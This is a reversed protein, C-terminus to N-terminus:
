LEQSMLVHGDHAYRIWLEDLKEQAKDIPAAKYRNDEVQEVMGGAILKRVADDIEFDVKIELRRELDLEVYDDLESMTWGREGAYRWLFFYALLVERIEQDEAEDLLRYMVGANNDLNQYYLSQTLQLTYQQRSVRFSYWTKYGYGGILAIPMYLGVLSGGLLATTIGAFSQWIKWALFGITSFISGGLKLRDFKPMRIRGGPLLMESDQQPIDKFLKLFVSDFDADDGLRKHPQQKFIVAVRSFTPVTVDIHRWFRPWKRKTRKGVGKGRYFVEVREFAEWAVDMDIGWSSAGQTVQELEERTLRTYNAREMLNVFTTFLSNLDAARQEATPTQLPKPEADPDFPTFAEKLQRLRTLYITHVHGAVSRAFRRFAAQERPELSQERRPGSESCLYDILDVVRIPIYHERDRFEAM